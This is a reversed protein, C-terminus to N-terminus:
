VKGRKPLRVVKTGSLRDHWSRGEKDVWIWWYGLGAAAFSLMATLCRLICQGWGPKGGAANQVQIRWAQMGLTQGNKRWFLSYFGMVVALLYLQFGWGSLLPDAKHMVQNSAEPIDTDLQGTVLVALLTALCLLAFLLLGDYIMAALRPVVGASPLSEQNDTMTNRRYAFSAPM